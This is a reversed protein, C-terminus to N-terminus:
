NMGLSLTTILQFIGDMGNVLESFQNTRSLYQRSMWPRPPRARWLGIIVFEYLCQMACFKNALQTFCNLPCRLRLDTDIKMQHRQNRDCRNRHSNLFNCVFRDVISSLSTDRRYCKANASANSYSYPCSIILCM